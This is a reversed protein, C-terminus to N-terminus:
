SYHHIKLLIKTQMKEFFVKFRMTCDQKEHFGCSEMNALVLLQNLNEEDRMNGEKGPNQDCWQRARKGFLTVNLLDAECSYLEKEFEKDRVQKVIQVYGFEDIRFVEGCKPCRIEAM